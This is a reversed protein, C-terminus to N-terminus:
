PRSKALPIGTDTPSHTPIIAACDIPSGPVCNVMLVKGRQHFQAFLLHSM